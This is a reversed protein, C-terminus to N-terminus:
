GQNEGSYRFVWTIHIGDQFNYWYSMGQNGNSPLNDTHSGDDAIHVYIWINGSTSLYFISPIFSSNHIVM